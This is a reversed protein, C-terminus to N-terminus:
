FMMAKREFLDTTVKGGTSRQRAADTTELSLRVTVLGARRMLDALPGTIERAHLGNPAHLRVPWEREIVAELIPVLHQGSDLLLSDDYFAFDRIGRRVCTEIEEVVAAPERQVFDPQLRRSACYTCRYPCGWSTILGAFPRPVLEHAPPLCARPDAYRDPTSDHSTVQDVFRLAAMVGPGAIVEDAGSHQRAHGRCLTAYIGGLAVPVTGL